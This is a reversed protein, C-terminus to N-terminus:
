ATARGTCSTVPGATLYQRRCGRGRSCVMAYSGQPEYQLGPGGNFKAQPSACVIGNRSVCLECLPMVGPMPFHPDLARYLRPHPDIILESCRQCLVVFRPTPQDEEDCEQWYNFLKVSRREDAGCHNCTRAERHPLTESLKPWTM